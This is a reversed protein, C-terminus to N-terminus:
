VGKASWKCRSKLATSLMARVANVRRSVSRRSMRENSAGAAVIRLLLVSGRRWSPLVFSKNLSGAARAVRQLFSLLMGASRALEARCFDDSSNKTSIVCVVFLPPRNRCAVAAGLEDENDGETEGETTGVKRTPKEEERKRELVAAEESVREEERKKM